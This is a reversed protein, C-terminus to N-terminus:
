MGLVMEWPWPSIVVKLAQVAGVLYCFIVEAVVLCPRGVGLSFRSPDVLLLWLM